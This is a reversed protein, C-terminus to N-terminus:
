FSIKLQIGGTTYSINRSTVQGAPIKLFPEFSAIYSNFIEQRYGVSFTYFAAWNMRELSPESQTQTTRVTVVRTTPQLGTTEFNEFVQIRQEYEFNYNYEEKLFAMSAIGVSLSLHNTLSYRVNLPIELNVFDLQVSALDDGTLLSPGDEKSFEMLRNGTEGSYKLRNQAIFVGSSVTLNRTFNWDAYFGGGSGLDTQSDHINVVPAYAISFVLDKKPGPNSLYGIDENQVIINAGQNNSGPEVPQNSGATQLVKRIQDPADVTTFFGYDKRTYKQLSKRSVPADSRGFNQTNSENPSKDSSRSMENDAMENGPLKEASNGPLPVNELESFSPTTNEIANSPDQSQDEAIQGDPLSELNLWAFAFLLMLVISAAVVMFLKQRRTRTKKNKYQKFREWSGLTYPEEHELLVERIQESLQNEKKSSM